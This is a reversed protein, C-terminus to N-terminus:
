ASIRRAHAPQHPRCCVRMRDRYSAAMIRADWAEVASGQRQLRLYRATWANAEHAYRVADTHLQRQASTRPVRTM